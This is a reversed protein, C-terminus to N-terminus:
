ERGDGRPFRSDMEPVDDPAALGTGNCAICRGRRWGNGGARPPGGAVWRRVTGLGKCTKCKTEDSM